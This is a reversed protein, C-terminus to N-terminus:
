DATFAMLMATVVSMITVLLRPGDESGSGISQTLVPILVSSPITWMLCYYHFRQFKAATNKWYGLTGALRSFHQKLEQKQEETFHPSDEFSNGGDHLQVKKLIAV